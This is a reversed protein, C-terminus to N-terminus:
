PDYTHLHKGVVARADGIAGDRDTISYGNLIKRDPHEISAVDSRKPQLVVADDTHEVQQQWLGAKKKRREDGHPLCAIVSFHGLNDRAGERRAESGTRDDKVHDNVEGEREGSAHAGAPGPDGTPLHGLTFRDSVSGVAVQSLSPRDINVCHPPHPQRCLIVFTLGASATVNDNGSESRAILLTLETTLSTGRGWIVATGVACAWCSANINGESEVGRPKHLGRPTADCQYVTEPPTTTASDIGIAADREVPRVNISSGSISLQLIPPTPQGDPLRTSTGRRRAAGSAASLVRWRSVRNDV